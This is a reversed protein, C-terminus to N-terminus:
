AVRLSAACARQFCAPRWPCHRRRNGRLACRVSVLPCWWPPAPPNPLPALCTPAWAPLTAWTTAWTTQLPPRACRLPIEKCRAATCRTRRPVPGACRLRAHPQHWAPAGLPPAGRAVEGAIVAPNRPDDEPIDKEVKGVLDAGVDAAQLPAGPPVCLPPASTSPAPRQCCVLRPQAHATELLCFPAPELLTSPPKPNPPRPSQTSPTPGTPVAYAPGAPSGGGRSTASDCRAAPGRLAGVKTYIGGGVRGFLAISSGGLGYGTIAQLPASCHASLMAPTLAALRQAPFLLLGSLLADTCCGGGSRLTAARHM